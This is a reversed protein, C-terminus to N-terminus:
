LPRREVLLVGADGSTESFPRRCAAGEHGQPVAQLFEEEEEIARATAAEFLEEESDHGFKGKQWKRRRCKMPLEPDM